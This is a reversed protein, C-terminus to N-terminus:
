GVNSQGGTSTQEPPFYESRPALSESFGEGKFPQPDLGFNTSLITRQHVLTKQELRPLVRQCHRRSHSLIGIDSTEVNALAPTWRPQPTIQLVIQIPKRLFAGTM